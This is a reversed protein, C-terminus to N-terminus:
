TRICKYSDGKEFLIITLINESGGDLKVKDSIEVGCVAFVEKGCAVLPINDRERRPIKEDIFYDKLKKTGSGFKQFVDGEKRTRLVCGEPLKDGDLVLQRRSTRFEGVVSFAGKLIQVNCFGFDFIGEGFPTEATEAKKEPKYLAIKGYERRAVIDQPLDVAKGNESYYLDQMTFCTCTPCVFNCRGCAICRSNYQNWLSSEGVRATLNEPIKVQIQNETVHAPEVPIVAGGLSQLLAEWIPEKCDLHYTGDPQSDISLDYNGSINTGMSVCFCNEYTHKCGMLVIKLHERLRHYYYDGPGNHLYMDDLRKLAHLDCSRLFIVAGKQPGDAEKTHGEAFFFLTQSIPTLVEKFSYQSKEKFEIEEPRLIKGYRICDTDSLRGGGSLRRPAYVDYDAQWSDLLAQLQNRSVCFGM